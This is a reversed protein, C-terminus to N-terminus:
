SLKRNIVLLCSFIDATGFGQVHQYKQADVPQVDLLLLLILFPYLHVHRIDKKMSIWMCPFLCWGWGWRQVSNRKETPPLESVQWCFFYILTKKCKLPIQTRIKVHILLFPIRQSLLCKCRIYSQPVNKLHRSLICFLYSTGSSSSVRSNYGKRKSVSFHSADLLTYAYQM